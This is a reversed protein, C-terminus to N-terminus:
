RGLQLTDGGDEGDAVADTTGYFASLKQSVGADRDYFHVTGGKGGGSSRDGGAPITWGKTTGSKSRHPFGPAIRGLIQYLVAQFLYFDWGGAPLRGYGGHLRLM